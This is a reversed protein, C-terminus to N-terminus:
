SPPRSRAATPCSAMYDAVFGFVPTERGDAEDQRVLDPRGEPRRHKHGRAEKRRKIEDQIAYADDWDMEPFDDTIKTVDRAEARRKRPARGARRHNPKNLAM